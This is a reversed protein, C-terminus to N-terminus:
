KSDHWTKVTENVSFGKIKETLFFQKNEILSKLEQAIKKAKVLNSLCYSKVKQGKIDIEGSYLEEYNVSKLIPKQRKTVSYDLINTSIDKNQISTKFALNENLIPIPVGIGVYLSIGYGKFVAARLYESSMKKLDGILALTGAPTNPVQTAPNRPAASNFQTGEWAVYGTTGGLFLSTGVGITEYEPDNILPSLEGAGTFNINSLNPKLIGMYTNLTKNSTNTAVNYNQYANRPNYLYAENIDSLKFKSKLEKRPYCDSGNSFAEIQVTKGNVLDEIVHAGGYKENNKAGETAGLYLDVAAIGAYASVNNLFAKQIRIPPDTHGINFFAGSSCMAGFTGTTVVDVKQAAKKCGQNAVINKMETATVIVAKGTKIKDNIEQITKTM